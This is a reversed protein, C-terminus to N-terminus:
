GGPKIYHRYCIKALEEFAKTVNDGSKASTDYYFKFEIEENQKRIDDEDIESELDSKNGVLLM